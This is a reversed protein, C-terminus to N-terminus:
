TIKVPIFPLGLQQAAIIRHNGDTVSFGRDLDVAPLPTGEQFAKKIQDVRGQDFDTRTLGAPLSDTRVLSVQGDPALDLDHFRVVTGPSRGELGQIQFHNPPIPVTQSVNAIPSDFDTQAGNFQRFKRIDEDFFVQEGTGNLGIMGVLAFDAETAHQRAM